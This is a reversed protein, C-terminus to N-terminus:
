APTVDRYVQLLIDPTPRWDRDPCREFGLSRYLAHAPANIDIVSVVVTADDARARDRLQAMVERAIGRGRHEPAVALMRLEVEGPRAIEAWPTGAPCVTVTAVLEGPHEEHEVVLLEAERARREGDVLESVYPGDTDHLAPGGRYARLTLEGVARYEEPRAPRIVLAM